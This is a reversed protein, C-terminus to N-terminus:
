VNEGELNVNSEPGIVAPNLVSMRTVPVELVEQGVLFDAVRVERVAAPRAWAAANM